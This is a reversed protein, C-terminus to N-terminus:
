SRIHISQGMVFCNSLKNQMTHVIRGVVINDWMYSCKGVNLVIKGCIFILDWM